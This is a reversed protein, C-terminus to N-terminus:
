INIWFFTFMKFVMNDSEGSVVGKHGGTSDNITIM